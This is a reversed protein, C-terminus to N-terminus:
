EGLHEPRPEPRVIVDAPRCLVIADPFLGSQSIAEQGNMHRACEPLSGFENIPISPGPVIGLLYVTMLVVHGM